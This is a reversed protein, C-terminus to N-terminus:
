DNKVIRKILAPKFLPANDDEINDKKPDKKGGKEPM